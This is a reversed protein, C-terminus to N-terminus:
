RQLKLQTVRKDLLIIYVTGGNVLGIYIQNSSHNFTFTNQQLTHEAGLSWMKTYGKIKNCLGSHTVIIGKPISTTRSTYLIAAPSEAQACNPVRASPKLLLTSINIVAASPTDLQLVDQIMTHDALISNVKCNAAVAALRAIPNCIDLPVYISGIRMIALMSCVWDLAATQYVLVRLGPGMGVDQLAEAIAQICNLMDSYTLDKSIGNALARSDKNIEAVEDIRHPLTSPWDSEM